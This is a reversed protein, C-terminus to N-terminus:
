SRTVCSVPQPLVRSPTDIAEATSRRGSAHESLAGWVDADLAASATAADLARAGRGVADTDVPYTREVDAHLADAALDPDLSRAEGREAPLEGACAGRNPENGSVRDALGGRAGM